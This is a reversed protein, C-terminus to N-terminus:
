YKIFKVVTASSESGLKAVYVGAKLRGTAIKRDAGISGRAVEEGLASFIRYSEVAQNGTVFLDGETPNPFLRVTLKSVDATGAVGDATINDIHLTGAIAQGNFDINENSLIRIESVDSLVEQITNTGGVLTFDNATVPLFFIDWDTQTTPLSIGNTTAIRTNDSGGQLAIRIFLDNAGPNKALFSIQFVGAGAYDGTWEANDNQIILKSGAGSGGASIEELFNDNAGTPGGTPINTPPNPSNNGNSWGQITGDEFDSTTGVQIQGVAGFVIGFACLVSYFLKRDM